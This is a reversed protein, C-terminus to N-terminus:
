PWNQRFAPPNQQKSLRSVKSNLSGNIPKRGRLATKAAPKKSDESKAKEAEAAFAAAAADRKANNLRAFLQDKNGSKKLGRKVLEAQLEKKTWQVELILQIIM